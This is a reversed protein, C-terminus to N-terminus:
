LLALKGNLIILFFFALHLDNLGLMKALESNLWDRKKEKPPPPQGFSLWIAEVVKFMWDEMVFVVM